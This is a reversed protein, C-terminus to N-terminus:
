FIWKNRGEFLIYKKEYKWLDIQSPYVKSLLEEKEKFEQVEHIYPANMLTNYFIVDFGGRAISEGMHGWRRHEPHIEYIPDPIYLTTNPNIFSNPISNLFLQVGIDIHDKLKLAEASRQQNTSISYIIIPKKTTLIEYCGIIEDDPHPAVIVNVHNEKEM